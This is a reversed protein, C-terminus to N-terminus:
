GGFTRFAIGLHRVNVTQGIFITGSGKLVASRRHVLQPEGTTLIHSGNTSVDQLVFEGNVYRIEAHLRSVSPHEVLIDSNKLRGLTFRVLMHDLEFRQSHFSLTLKTSVPQSTLVQRVETVEEEDEDLLVDFIETEGSKGRVTVAGLSRLLLQSRDEVAEM